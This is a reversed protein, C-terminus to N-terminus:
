KKKRKETEKEMWDLVSIIHTYFVENSAPNSNKSELLPDIRRRLKPSDFYGHATEYFTNDDYIKQNLGICFINIKALYSSLLKYEESSNDECIDRIEAPSYANIDNLAENQLQNFADLTAQRRNRLLTQIYTIISFVISAVAVVASVISIVFSVTEM